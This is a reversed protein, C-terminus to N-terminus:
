QMQPYKGVILKVKSTYSDTKDIYFATSLNENDKTALDWARSKSKM